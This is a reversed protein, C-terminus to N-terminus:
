LSDTTVAFAACLLRWSSRYVAAANRWWVKKKTGRYEGPAPERVMLVPGSASRLVLEADSGLALRTLGRHGHTGMAVLDAGWQKAAEVIISGARVASTETM